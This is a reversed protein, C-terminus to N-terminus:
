SPQFRKCCKLAEADGGDMYQEDAASTMGGEVSRAALVVLSRRRKENGNLVLPKTPAVALEPCASEEFGALTLVIARWGERSADPCDM